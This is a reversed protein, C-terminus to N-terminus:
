QVTADHAHGKLSAYIAKTRALSARLQSRLAAPTAPDALAASVPWVTYPGIECYTATITVGDAVLRSGKPVVHVSVVAGDQTQPRLGARPSQNSLLNGMGFVVYKDRVRMVPQQVHVHDGLILDVDPSALLKKAQTMQEATPTSQYEAGWHLSLVVFKAGAARARHADALIRPVSILNVAWPASRPVPEGNTGFTYSLHAVKDGGITHTEIRAGEAKSRATGAHAVHDADLADLTSRVGTVGKDISHNSATSCGDYGAWAVADALEHPTNFVPYGSINKDDASLPTEIHCVALDAEAIQARVKTLMPTFDYRKGHGYRLAAKAVPGHILLDGTAVLTFGPTATSGSPSPTGSAQPGSASPAPAGSSVAAAPATGRPSASGGSCGAVTLVVAMAGLAAAARRTSTV